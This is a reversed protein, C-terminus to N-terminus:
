RLVLELNPSGVIKVSQDGMSLLVTSDIEMTRGSAPDTYIVKYDGINDLPVGYKISLNGLLSNFIRDAEQQKADSLLVGAKASESELYRQYLEPNTQLFQLMKADAPLMDAQRTEEGLYGEGFAVVPNIPVFGEVPKMMNLFGAMMKKAFDPDRNTKDLYAKPLSRLYNRFKPKDVFDGKDDLQFGQDTVLRNKMIQNWESPNADPIDGGPDKNFLNELGDNSIIVDETSPRDEESGDADRFMGPLLTAGALIAKTGKAKTAPNFINPSLYPVPNQFFGSKPVDGEPVGGGTKPTGGTAADDVKTAPSQQRSQNFDDADKKRRAAADAKAKADIDDQRKKEAKKLDAKRKREAAAKKQAQTQKKPKLKENIKTGSSKPKDPTKTEVKYRKDPTGDKKLKIKEKAKDLLARGGKKVAGGKAFKIIGGDRKNLIEDDVTGFVNPMSPLSEKIVEAVAERGEPEKLIEILESSVEGIEVLDQIGGKKILSPDERIQDRAEYSYLEVPGIRSITRENTTALDALENRVALQGTASLGYKGTRTGGLVLGNAAAMNDIPNTTFLDKAKKGMSRQANKINEVKKMKNKLKNGKVGLKILKAAIAAPPFVMLGAIAYDVPDTPDFVLDTFDRLNAGSGEATRQLNFFSKDADGGDAYSAIGSKNKVEDAVKSAASFDLYKEIEKKAIGTSLNKFDGRNYAELNEDTINRLANVVDKRAQIYNQSAQIRKRDGLIPLGTPNTGPAVRSDKFAKQEEQQLFNIYEDLMNLNLVSSDGGNAYAAIGGNAKKIVGRGMLIDKQTVKGDGSLDPFGGKKLEVPELGSM